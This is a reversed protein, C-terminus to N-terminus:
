TRWETVLRNLPERFLWAAGAAGVLMLVMLFLALAACERWSMPAAATDRPEPRPTEVDGSSPVLPVDSEHPTGSIAERNSDPFLKHVSPFESAAPEASGDIAASFAASAASVAPFASSPLWDPLNPLAGELPGGHHSDEVTEASKYRM